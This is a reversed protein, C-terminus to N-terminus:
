ISYALSWRDTDIEAGGFLSKLTKSEQKVAFPRTIGLPADIPMGIYVSPRLLFYKLSGSLNMGSRNKSSCIGNVYRGNEYPGLVHGPGFNAIYSIFLMKDFTKSLKSTDRVSSLSMTNLPAVTKRGSYGSLNLNLDLDQTQNSYFYFLYPKFM